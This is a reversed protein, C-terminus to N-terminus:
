PHREGRRFAATLRDAGTQIAPVCFLALAGRRLARVM